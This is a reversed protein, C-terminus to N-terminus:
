KEHDTTEMGGLVRGGWPTPASSSSRFVKEVIIFFIAFKGSIIQLPPAQSEEEMARVLRLQELTHNKNSESIPKMNDNMALVYHQARCERKPTWIEAMTTVINNEWSDDETDHVLFVM